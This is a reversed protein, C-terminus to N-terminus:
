FPSGLHLYFQTEGGSTFGRAVGMRLNFTLRYGLVLQVFLEAGSGVLFEKLQPTGAFANGADSFVTAWVRRVYFPLTYIGWEPDFLPFRYELQVQHFQPGARFGQEYGRLATGDLSPISGFVVVDYLSPLGADKPFGGVSFSGAHGPDGAALGGAYRLGLAHHALWPVRFYQRLEWRASVTHLDRGMIPDTVDLHFTLTRGGTPSIDYAERTVDSYRYGFGASPIFGLEPLRPAPDNPDLKGGFPKAKDLYALSYSFDLSQTRRISQFLYSLGLGGGVADASWPRPKGGVNLDQRTSIRRYLQLSPQLPTRNYQYYVSAEPQSINEPAFTVHLAYNHFYALDAGSVNVSIEQGFPGPALDLRYSHPWLTPLPDYPESPLPKADPVDLSQPRLDAFDPAARDLTAPLLLECIGFGTSQYDVYVLRRGDRSVSPQYAGGLVNTVQQILGSSLDFAYINAIGTRDSSFFVKASDPSWTPGTDSARDHTLERVAGSQADVLLIDRYGGRRWASIAIQSGDPSFRPTFVQDYPRSRLLTRRTGPVDDLSAIELHSTGSKQTVFAVARGNPAVDPQSARMGVTLRESDGSALDLRFLDHFSYIDRYPASQSYVLGKGDPEASFIAEGSTRTLTQGDLTRIAGPLRGDDAYYALRGDQLFRPTRALDAHRALTRGTVLGTASVAERQAAYREIAEHRFQEYLEVFSYGTARRAVRNLGYPVIQRGYDRGLTHLAADGYHRGIFDVFRSGYLYRIDGHPWRLPNNSIQALSPLRGDLADMRLFMDFLTSRIRGGSTQASEEYVAIGEIFWQPQLSNPSVTKGFLTNIVAPIGGIQDLHLIHTYEHTVLTAVWDDYDGISSLDDPAAAFLHIQNHPIVEAVGNADDSDDTLLVYTTQSPAFGLQKGVLSNAREALTALRQAMAGLPEHYTIEFHQTRLTRFVLHPDPAQAGAGKTLCEAGVVVCLALWLPTKGALSSTEGGVRSRLRGVEGLSTRSGPM